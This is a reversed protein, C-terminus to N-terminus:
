TVLGFEGFHTELDWWLPDWSKALTLGLIGHDRPTLANMGSNLPSFKVKLFSNLSLVSLVIMGRARKEKFLSPSPRHKMMMCCMAHEESSTTHSQCKTSAVWFSAVRSVDWEAAKVPIQVTPAVAKFIESDISKNEVRTYLHKATHALRELIAEWTLSKPRGQGSYIQTIDPRGKAALGTYSKTGISQHKGKGLSSIAKTLGCLARFANTDYSTCARNLSLFLLLQRRLYIKFITYSWAQVITDNKRSSYKRYVKGERM